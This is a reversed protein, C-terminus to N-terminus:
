VNNEGLYEYDPCHTPEKTAIKFEKKTYDRKIGAIFGCDEFNCCDVCRGVYNEQM